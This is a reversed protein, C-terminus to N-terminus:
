HWMLFGLDAVEEQLHGWWSRYHPPVVGLVARRLGVM